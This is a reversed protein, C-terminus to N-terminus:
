WNPSFDSDEDNSIEKEREIEKALAECQPGWFRRFPELCQDIEELGSQEFSYIRRSGDVRVSAFGNDRPVELHLSIASRSIGFEKGVSSVIEGSRLDKAGIQELIRRRVPDNLIAFAKM